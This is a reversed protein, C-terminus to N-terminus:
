KRDGYVVFFPNLPKEKNYKVSDGRALAERWDESAVGKNDCKGAQIVSGGAESVVAHAAATDWECTPALRPYIHAVGEAVMLLKLSSGLQQFKPNQFQAVFEETAATSHTASGVLTLGPDDMSFSAARIQQPNSSRGEKVFAGQGKAAYYVKGSVPIQVVGMIPTDGEILAINVTFQGNRKIFEKTGDLPDVCWFYKYNQM